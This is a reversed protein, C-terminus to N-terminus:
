GLIRGVLGSSRCETNDALRAVGTEDFSVSTVSRRGTQVSAYTLTVKHAEDVAYGGSSLPKLRIESRTKVTRVLPDGPPREAILVAKGSTGPFEARNGLADQVVTGCDVLAPNGSRLRISGDRLVAVDSFGAARLAQAVREPNDQTALGASGSSVPARFSLRDGEVPMGACGAALLVLALCSVPKFPRKTMTFGIIRM